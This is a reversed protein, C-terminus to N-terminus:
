NDYAEKLLSTLIIQKQTNNLQDLDVYVPKSIDISPVGNFYKDYISKRHVPCNINFVNESYFSQKKYNCNCFPNSLWHTHKNKDLDFKWAKQMKFEIKEIKKVSNDRIKISKSHFPNTELIEKAVKLKSLYEKLRRHLTHIKELDDYNLKQKKILATNLTVVAKAM